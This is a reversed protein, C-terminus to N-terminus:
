QGPVGRHTEGGGSTFRNVGVLVKEGKSIKEQLEYSQRALDRQLTGEEIAKVIGGRGEYDAMTKRMREEMQNTLSEVYYSGGLPDVTDSVGLEHALIQQTRIAVRASEESPTQFPEDMSSLFAHQVGGLVAAMAAATVRVINNM